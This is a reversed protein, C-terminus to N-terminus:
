DDEDILQLVSNYLPAAVWFGAQNILADLLPEVECLLGQSKPEVLIGVIGTYRLNLRAAVLCGRREDILAQEAELELTLAIADAEGVDLESSLAEAVARDNISRTQIWNVSSAPSRLLIPM